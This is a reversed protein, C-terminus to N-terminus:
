APPLVFGFSALRRAGARSTVYRVWADALKRNASDAVVAIPYVALVNVSAPIRVTAVSKGAATADTAYVIGASADGTSVATLVARVDQSRTIRDTPITVGALALAEAAYKGCPVTEACLAVVGADALDELSRVHSPNGQKVVITLSNSVFDVPEATVQGGRVLKRMNVRDASAFVDAPAGGLIQQALTSSAAFNFTIGTGRNAREFDAGMRTFADTLSAAASVTISGSPRRSGTSAGAGVRAGSVLALVV